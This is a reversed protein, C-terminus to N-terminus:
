YGQSTGLQRFITQSSQPRQKASQTMPANTEQSKQANALAVKSRKSANQRLLSLQHAYLKTGSLKVPRNASMLNSENSPIDTLGLLNALEHALITPNGKGRAESKEAFIVANIPPLNTAVDESGKPFSKIVYITPTSKQGTGPSSVAKSVKSTFSKLSEPFHVEQYQQQKILFSGTDTLIWQIGYQRYIQNLQDVIEASESDGWTSSLNKAGEFQLAIVNIPISIIKQNPPINAFKVEPSNAPTKVRPSEGQQLTNTSPFPPGEEVINIPSQAMGLGGMALLLMVMVSIYHNRPDITFPGRHIVKKTTLNYINM